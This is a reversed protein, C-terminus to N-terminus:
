VEYGAFGVKVLERLFDDIHSRVDEPVEAFSKQIDRQIDDCGHKGDLLKWVAVAIPNIGFAKGTEPDFLIAWEDFEERCVVMPNATLARHNASMMDDGSIM